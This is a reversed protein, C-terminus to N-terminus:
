EIVHKRHLDMISDDFDKRLISGNETSARDHWTFAEAGSSWLERSDPHQDFQHANTTIRVGQKMGPLLIEYEHQQILKVHVGAPLLAENQLVRDLDELTLTAALRDPIQLDAETIEDIDFGTEEQKRIEEELNGILQEKVFERNELSTLVAREIRKPLVSLIPQLKGVFQTFLNIRNRLSLYVDTEVTGQYHLNVIRIGQKAFTQGLRDIRGIRQEVRMPNWPMDYNILAGCFQFNLGESAADTCLLLEAKGERFADKTEDRSIIHWGGGPTPVEGGRGSFCMVKYNRDRLSKRLFDMTDTYQTFVIVQPYGESKLVDIHRVLEKAKSDMPLDHIMALLEDIRSVEENKLTRQEIEQIEDEDMYEDLMADDSIDELFIPPHKPDFVKARRKRLTEKLAYFSSGLRRQYITMIFGIANRESSAAKNYTEVIYQEVERYVKAEDHPRLDVFEDQVNRSAIPTKLKGEEHYRRLLERTHRSILKSVPTGRRLIKLANQRDKYSLTQRPTSANDRLTRLLSKAKMRSLGTVQRAEDIGMEEYYKECAKFLSALREFDDNNPNESALEFYEQFSDEDWSFPMGLLSMLDWVEVPHVQMPTATLLLLGQTRKRLDLMLDLLQNPGKSNTSGAGKRRAHHAEDLVVLDWPEANLLEVKRDVRRMLQSSAIVIDQHHWESASVSEERGKPHLPTKAWRLRHGDYIPWNLNFKERLELQWQTLVAKPALILIRKAKESLWAQRLLLGAEITKGLGVEDAILLKPPWNDYMRHFAKVQHPWPIINATAEGVREGGNPMKAAHRIYTWIKRVLEDIEVAPREEGLDVSLVPIVIGGPVRKPPQDSDPQYKLLNNRAANPLDIVVVRKAQDNWLQAFGEDEDDVHDTGGTWTTFVHFSEWNATWGQATENISGNFALRNGESDEVVGAKEHFLANYPVPKRTKIDCPISVKVELYDNAVMWALLELADTQEPNTPNLPSKEMSQDVAQFLSIGKQVAEVEQPGLTSGVILRMHGGNAILSEIGRAARSLVWATFYGTTRDYRVARKLAPIFFADLLSDDDDSHYKTKWQRDPLLM